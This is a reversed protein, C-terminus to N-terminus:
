EGELPGYQARYGNLEDVIEDRERILRAIVLMAAENKAIKKNLDSEVEIYEKSLKSKEYILACYETKLKNVIDIFSEKINNTNNIKPVITNTNIDILEDTNIEINTIPCKGNENICRGIEKKDYIMKTKTCYVPIEIEKGSIPCKVIASM